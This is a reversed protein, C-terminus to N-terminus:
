PSRPMVPSFGPLVRLWPIGVSISYPKEVRYAVRDKARAWCPLMFEFSLLGWLCIVASHRFFSGTTYDTLVANFSVHSRAGVGCWGRVRVVSEVKPRFAEDAATSCTSFISGRGSPEAAFHQARSLTM